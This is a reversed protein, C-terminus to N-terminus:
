LVIGAAVAFPAWDEYLAVIPIMVFFHFHAEIYGGSVAVLFASCAMLGAAAACSSLAPPPRLRGGSHQGSRAALYLVTPVVLTALTSIPAHNLVAWAALVPLHLLLVSTVWRHRVRWVPEPLQLRGPLRWSTAEDQDATM